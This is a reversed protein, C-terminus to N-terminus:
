KKVALEGEIKETKRMERKSKRLQREQELSAKLVKKEICDGMFLTDRKYQDM